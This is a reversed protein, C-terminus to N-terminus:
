HRWLCTPHTVGRRGRSSNMSRDVHGVSDGVIADEDSRRASCQRHEQPAIARQRFCGNAAIRMGEWVQRNPARGHRMAPSNQDLVRINKVNKIFLGPRRLSTSPVRVSLNPFSRADCGISELRLAFDFRLFAALRPLYHQACIGSSSEIQRLPNFSLLTAPFM